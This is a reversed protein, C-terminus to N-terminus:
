HYLTDIISSEFIDEHNIITRMITRSLKKLSLESISEEEGTMDDITTSSCRELCTKCENALLCYMISPLIDHCEISVSLMIDIIYCSKKVIELLM